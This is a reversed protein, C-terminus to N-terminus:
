PIFHRIDIEYNAGTKPNPRAKYTIVAKPYKNNYFEEILNIPQANNLLLSKYREVEGKWMEEVTKLAIGASSRESAIQKEYDNITKYGIEKQYVLDNELVEIDLKLSRYEEKSIIVPLANLFDQWNM